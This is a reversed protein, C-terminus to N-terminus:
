HLTPWWLSARLVKQATAKGAYHGGAIGEHAKALILPIEAKIVCRRLIENPGMKYINRAILQFYAACVVLQKKQIVTYERPVMGMSFFQVIEVFHDNFKRIALLHADLLTDDLSTSEEGHEVKSLHDLGKNIRGPNVMIEFDYEQFLVPWRCIRGGLVPKNVLYKLKSHDTFMKFNGGMLYQRFKQLVYVMALGEREITNYNREATSLKRSSFYIPHDIDRAGPHAL